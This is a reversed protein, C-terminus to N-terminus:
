KKRWRGDAGMVYQGPPTRKILKEGAILAVADITIGQKEALEAYKNRRKANIREVLDKVEAPADPDVLGLFGDIREGVLGAAKADELAGAAAPSAILGLALLMITAFRAIRKM